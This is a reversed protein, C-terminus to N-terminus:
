PCFKLLQKLKVKIKLNMMFELLEGGNKEMQEVNAEQLV